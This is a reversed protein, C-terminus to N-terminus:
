EIVSLPASRREGNEGVVVLQYAGPYLSRIDVRTTSGPQITYRDLIVSRGAMDMVFLAARSGLGNPWTITVEEKAPNPFVHLVGQQAVAIGTSLDSSWRSFQQTNPGGGFDITSTVLEAIPWAQGAVFFAYSDYTQDMSFFGLDDVLAHTWHVRLVNPISGGPMVLTGYGDVQGSFSGTRVVENEEVTFTANQPSSWTTGFTCPFPLYTGQPAHVIVSTGDDSGAFHIGDNAVRYYQTVLDNMEAITATPFQAGNPTNAASIYQATLSSDISLASLDWTRNPGASGPQVYPGFNVAFSTAVVPTNTTATLTPQAQAATTLLAASCFALLQKM